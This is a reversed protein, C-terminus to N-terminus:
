HHIRKKTKADAFDRMVAIPLLKYYTDTVVEGSDAYWNGCSEFYSLIREEATTQPGGGDRLKKERMFLAMDEVLAFARAQVEGYLSLPEIPERGENKLTRMLGMLENEFHPAIATCFPVAGSYASGERALHGLGICCIDILEDSHRM